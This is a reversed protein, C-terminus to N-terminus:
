SEDILEDIPEDIPEDDCVLPKGVVRQRWSTTVYTAM